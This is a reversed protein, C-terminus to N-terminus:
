ISQSEEGLAIPFDCLEATSKETGDQCKLHSSDRKKGRIITKWRWGKGFEEAEAVTQLLPKDLTEPLLLAFGGGLISTVGMVILPVVLNDKGTYVIFPVAILGLNSFYTGLSMGISRLETPFLEGAFPYIILFSATISLKAVLFLILSLAM